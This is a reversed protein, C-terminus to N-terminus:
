GDYGMREVWPRLIPMVPALEDRYRQWRAVARQYLPETVQAYSATRVTGRQQAGAVNDILEPTYDAGIFDLAARLEAAPDAVLREYRVRHVTLPLRAEAQSWATFVADYTRAAEKLDTFSLMAQNPRFNAMFCSLVVDYPHREVLLIRAEPFLRHILPMRAMHLPHKDVTLDATASAGLDEVMAWYRARLDALADPALAPVSALGGIAQELTPIMPQEELVQAGPLRGVMTDLLTTGSRPFGVIFLPAPRDTAPGDVTPPAWDRLAETEGIIKARYSGVASPPATERVKANMETFLAFAAETEGMRDAILARIHARRHASITEPIRQAHTAAEELRGRRFAAWAELLALEDGIRQRAVAILADLLDLANHNELLLGLELYAAPDEPALTIARRLAEEAANVDEAAAEALGLALQVRADDPEIRAVDRAVRRRAEPRDLAELVEILALYFDTGQRRQTIAMELSAVAADGEGLQMQAQSLNAWSDADEPWAAVVDRYLAAAALADGGQLAVFAALRDVKPERPLPALLDTVRELRGTAILAQALNFRTARDDPILAHLAELHGRAAEPDGARSALMAAFALRPESPQDVVAAEAQERAEAIRGAQALQAIGRLVTEDNTM